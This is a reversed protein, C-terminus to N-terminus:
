RLSKVQKSWYFIWGALALILGIGSVILQSEMTPRADIYTAVTDVLQSTVYIAVFAVSISIVSWTLRGYKSLRTKRLSVYSVLGLGIIIAPSVFTYLNVSNTVINNVLSWIPLVAISSILVVSFPKYELIDHKAQRSRVHAIALITTIIAVGISPILNILIIRANYGMSLENPILVLVSMLTMLWYALLGFLIGSFHHSLRSKSKVSHDGIMYGVFVPLIAGVTLAVTIVAVNNRLVRPDFLMRGFPITTSLLVAVILLAFLIYGTIVLPSHPNTKKTKVM